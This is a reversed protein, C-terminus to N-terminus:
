CFIPKAEMSSICVAFLNNNLPLVYLLPLPKDNIQDGILPNLSKEAVGGNKLKGKLNKM